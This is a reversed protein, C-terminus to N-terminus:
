GSKKVSKASVKLSQECHDIQFEEKKNKQFKKKSNLYNLKLFKWLKELIYVVKKNKLPNEYKKVTM